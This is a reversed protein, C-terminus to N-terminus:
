KICEKIAMKAVKDLLLSFRDLQSVSQENDICEVIIDLMEFAVKNSAMSSMIM